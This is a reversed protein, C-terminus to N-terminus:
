PGYERRESVVQLEGPSLGATELGSILSPLELRAEVAVEPREVRVSGSLGGDMWVLRFGIRGLTENVLDIALAVAQSEKAGGSAHRRANDDVGPKWELGIWMPTFVGDLSLPVMGRWHAAPTSPLSDNGPAKADQHIGASQLPLTANLEEGVELPAPEGAFGPAITQLRKIQTPIPKDMGEPRTQPLNAIPSSRNPPADPKATPEREPAKPLPPDKGQITVAGDLNFSRLIARGSQQQSEAILHASGPYAAQFQQAPAKGQPPIPLPGAAHPLGAPAGTQATARSSSPQGARSTAIPGSEPWERVASSLGYATAGTAAQEPATANLYAAQVLAEPMRTPDAVDPAAGTAALTPLATPPVSSGKLIAISREIFSQLAATAEKSSHPTLVELAAFAAERVAQPWELQLQHAQPGEIVETLSAIPVAGNDIRITMRALAVEPTRANGLGAGTGLGGLVRQLALLSEEPHCPAESTHVFGDAGSQAQRHGTAARTVAPLNEAGPGSRSSALLLAILNPERMEM